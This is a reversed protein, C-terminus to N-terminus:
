RRDKALELINHDILKLHEKIEKATTGHGRLLLTIERMYGDMKTIAKELDYKTKDLDTRLEKQEKTVTALELKTQEFKEKFAMVVGVVGLWTGM